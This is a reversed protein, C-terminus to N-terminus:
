NQTFQRDMWSSGSCQALYQKSSLVGTGIEVAMDPTTQRQASNARSIASRGLNPSRQCRLSLKWCDGSRRGPHGKKLLKAATFTKSSDISRRAAEVAQASQPLIGEAECACLQPQSHYSGVNRRSRPRKWAERADPDRRRCCPDFLKLWVKSVWWEWQNVVM